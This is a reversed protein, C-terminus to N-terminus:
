YCFFTELLKQRFERFVSSLFDKTNIRVYTHREKNWLGYGNTKKAEHTKSSIKKRWQMAV